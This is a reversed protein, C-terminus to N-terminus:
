MKSANETMDKLPIQKTKDDTRDKPNNTGDKENTNADSEKSPKDKVDSEKSPKFLYKYLPKFAFVSLLFVIVPMTLNHAAQFDNFNGLMFLFILILIFYALTIGGGCTFFVLCPAYKPRDSDYGYMYIIACFSYILLYFCLIFSVGLIYIFTTKIPDNIFSLLMYPLFYFGLYVMFGGVSTQLFAGLAKDSNSRHFYVIAYLILLVVILIATIVFSFGVYIGPLAQDNTNGNQDSNNNFDVSKYEEHHLVENGYRIIEVSAIIHFVFLVLTLLLSALSTAFIRM